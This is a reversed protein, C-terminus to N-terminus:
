DSYTRAIATATCNTGYVVGFQSRLWSALFSPMEGTTSRPKFEANVAVIASRGFLLTTASTLCDIMQFNDKFKLSLILAGLPPRQGQIPTNIHLEPYKAALKTIGAHMDRMSLDSLTSHLRFIFDKTGLFPKGTETSINLVDMVDIADDAVFLKVNKPVEGDIVDRASRALGKWDVDSYPTLVAGGNESLLDGNPPPHPCVVFHIVVAGRARRASKEYDSDRMYAGQDADLM